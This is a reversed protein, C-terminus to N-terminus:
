MNFNKKIWLKAIELDNENHIDISEPIEYPKVKKGMFSWPGDGLENKLLKKVNLVWFNHSLFYNKPLDQRNTSKPNLGVIDYSSLNGNEDLRKARLPHHDNDNIVPVVASITMDNKMINICDNIWKTKVTVNNALLVILIDPICNDNNKMYDLAHYISDIHQSNPLALEIPRVIKKYGITYACSLIKDDDSSCYFDDILKSKKTENAPYYLVPHGLIDIINKDKLTNNGRGTLLAVIKM